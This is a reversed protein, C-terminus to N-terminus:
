GPLTQVGPEHGPVQRHPVRRHRCPASRARRDRTAGLGEAGKILAIITLLLPNAALRSVDERAKIASVLEQARERARGEAAASKDTVREWALCWQGSFRAVDAEGLPLVTVHTFAALRAAEYGAIRSTVVFRNGTSARAGSGGPQGFRTVFEQVRRAVHLREGASLVEDLGDLLVIARGRELADLFLPGLGPQDRAAFHDGLYDTLSLDRKRLAEAYAAVGLVIPLPARDPDGLGLDAGGGAALVLAIHKLITTKGSGPDGLIM